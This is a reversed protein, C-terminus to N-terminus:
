TVRYAVYRESIRCPEIASFDYEWGMLSKMVGLYSRECVVHSVQFERALSLWDKKLFPIEEMFKEYLELTVASGQYTLARCGVRVNIAAGLSFPVTFVTANRDIRAESVFEELVDAKPFALTSWSSYKRLAVLAVWGSYLLWVTAPVNGGAAYKALSFSAVLWLAFEIYRNAEGYHRLAATSTAVYVVITSWVMAFESVATQQPLFIQLALLLIVEPYRFLIKTPEKHELEYIRSGLAQGRGLVIKL